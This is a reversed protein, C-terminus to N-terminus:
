TARINAAASVTGAVKKATTVTLEQGKRAASLAQGRLGDTANESM